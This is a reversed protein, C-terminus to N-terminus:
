KKEFKIICNAAEALIKSNHKKDDISDYLWERWANNKIWNKLWM